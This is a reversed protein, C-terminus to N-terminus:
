CITIPGQLADTDSTHTHLLSNWKVVLHGDYDSRGVRYRYATCDAPRRVTVLLKIQGSAPVTAPFVQWPTDAGEVSGGPVPAYVAWRVETVGLPIDVSSIAVSQSGSNRLSGVIQATAGPTSALRYSFGNTTFVLGRNTLPGGFSGDEVPGYRGDFYNLGLGTGVAVCVLTALIAM